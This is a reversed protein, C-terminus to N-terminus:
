KAETSQSPQLVDLKPKIVKFEVVWVWPNAKWSGAGNISDWLTAYSDYAPCAPDTYAGEAGADAESCDNLREVRVSVIELQIRSAVRFMHISPKWKPGMLYQWGDKLDAKYLYAPDSSGARQFCKSWTERVWLQDGPQGYPCKGVWGHSTFWEAGLEHISDETQFPAHKPQQKVVRRTQTKSGDLIARVMPASFLIPREKV